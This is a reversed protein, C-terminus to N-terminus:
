NPGAMRARDSRSEQARFPEVREYVGAWAGGKARKAFLQRAMPEADGVQVGNKECVNMKIVGPCCSRQNPLIRLQANENVRATRCVHSIGGLKEAASRPKVAVLHLWQISLEERHRLGIQLNKLTTFDKRKARPLKVHEVSGSVSRM